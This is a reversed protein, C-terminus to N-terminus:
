ANLVDAMVRVELTIPVLKVEALSASDAQV